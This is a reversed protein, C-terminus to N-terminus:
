SPRSRVLENQASIQDEAFPGNGSSCRSWGGKILERGLERGANGVQLPILRNVSAFLEVRTPSVGYHLTPTTPFTRALVEPLVLGIDEDVCYFYYHNVM